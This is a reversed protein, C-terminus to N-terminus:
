NKNTIFKYKLYDFLLKIGKINNKNVYDCKYKDANKELEGYKNYIDYIWIRNVSEIGIILIMAEYSEMYQKFTKPLICKELMDGNVMSNMRNLAIITQKMADKEDLKDSLINQYIRKFNLAFTYELSNKM